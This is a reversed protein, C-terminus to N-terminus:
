LASELGAGLWHSFANCLLAFVNCLLATDWQSPTLRSDDRGQGRYTSSKTDQMILDYPPQTKNMDSLLCGSKTSPLKSLDIKILHCLPNISSTWTMDNPFAISVRIALHIPGVQPRGPASLVWTSGMSAGHVKSDQSKNDTPSMFYRKTFNFNCM